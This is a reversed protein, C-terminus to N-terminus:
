EAPPYIFGILNLGSPNFPLGTARSKEAVEIGERGGAANTNGEVSRFNNKDVVLVVVGLHGQWGSGHRWIALAGVRPEQGTEFLDSHEFNAFTAVASGSFLKDIAPYLRHDKNFATKWILEGTYSCWSQLKQWGVAEMQKQFAPDKFGSNGPTEKQGVISRAAEVIRDILSNKAPPSFTWM